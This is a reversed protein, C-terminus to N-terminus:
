ILGILNSLKVMNYIFDDRMSFIFAFLIFEIYHTKFLTKKLSIYTMSINNTLIFIHLCVNTEYNIYCLYSLLWFFDQPSLHFIFKYKQTSTLIQASYIMIPLPNDISFISISVIENVKYLIGPLVYKLVDYKM